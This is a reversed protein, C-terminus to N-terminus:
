GLPFRIQFADSWYDVSEAIVPRASFDLQFLVYCISSEGQLAHGLAGAHHCCSFMTGAPLLCFEMGTIATM